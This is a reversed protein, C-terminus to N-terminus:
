IASYAKGHTLTVARLARQLAAVLKADREAAALYTAGDMTLDGPPHSGAAEDAARELETVRREEAHFLVRAAVTSPINHNLLILKAANEGLTERCTVAVDVVVSLTRNSPLRRDPGSLDDM